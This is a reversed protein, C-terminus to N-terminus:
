EQLIQSRASQRQRTERMGKMIEPHQAWDIGKEEPAGFLEPHIYYGRERQPKAQEVPIRHANAWADQRIGSVQWSIKMGPKGGAIRFTNNRVEQAVYV